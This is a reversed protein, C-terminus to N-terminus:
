RPPPTQRVGAVKWIKGNAKSLIYLDAKSDIGFRLDVRTSGALQQMTIPQDGGAFAALEYVKAPRAGSHMENPDAYFIRGPVFDAFIYKGRLAPASGGRYVFGGVV